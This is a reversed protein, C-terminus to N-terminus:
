EFTYYIIKKQLLRLHARLLIITSILAIMEEVISLITSSIIAKIIIAKLIAKIVMDVGYTQSLLM